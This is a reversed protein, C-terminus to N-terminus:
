GWPMDERLSLGAKHRTQCRVGVVGNRCPMRISTPEGCIVSWDGTSENRALFVRGGGEATGSVTQNAYTWEVTVREPVDPVREWIPPKLPKWRKVEVISGVAPPTAMDRKWQEAARAKEQAVRGAERAREIEWRSRGDSRRRHTSRSGGKKDVCPAGPSAACDPCEYNERAPDDVVVVANDYLGTGRPDVCRSAFKTAGYTVSKFGGNRGVVVETISGYRQVATEPSLHETVAVRGHETWVHEIVPEGIQAWAIPEGSYSDFLVAGSMAGDQRPQQVFAATKWTRAVALNPDRFQDADRRGVTTV